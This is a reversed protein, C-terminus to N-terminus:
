PWFLNDMYSYSREIRANPDAGYDLLTEVLKPMNKRTWGFRDTKSPSFNNLILVGEHLAYHLPAIGWADKINPDAGQELLFRALAEHGSAIAIILASGHEPHPANVEAGAELLIRASEIDGQQAAFHLPTFVGSVEAFRITAPFNSGFVTQGEPMKIQFPEPEPVLKTHAHVDAGGQVLTRVVAAHREAVAWILATQDEQDKANVEAGAVLLAKVADLVGNGACVMLPTEGTVKARNPDAGAALLAQVVDGNGNECALLLPTVSYLNALNV